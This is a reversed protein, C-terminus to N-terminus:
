DKALIRLLSLTQPAERIFRSPLRVPLHNGDACSLLFSNLEIYVHGNQIYFGFGTLEKDLRIAMDSLMYSDIKRDDISFSELESLVYKRVAPYDTEDLVDKLSLQQGSQLDFVMPVWRGHCSGNGGWPYLMQHFLVSIITGSQEIVEPSLTAVTYYSSCRSGEALNLFAKNVHKIHEDTGTLVPYRVDSECVVQEPAQGELVMLDNRQEPPLALNRSGAELTRIEFLDASQAPITLFLLVGCLFQAPYNFFFSATM